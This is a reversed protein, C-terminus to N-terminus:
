EEAIQKPAGSILGDVIGPKRYYINIYKTQEKPKEINNQMMWEIFKKRRAIEKVVENIAIGRETAIKYLLWSEGKYEFTDDHPVWAFTKSTRPTGTQADVSEIEVIEKIRRASKGKERAHIMVIVVDLSDLLGASLNIPHTQLRKMLDDVSGAHMTTISPHGSAMGQFMVYAEKGRIEGVVLYDPNQRFSERLLEFMTVEGVGSGTFGIRAVGPIWNDHPLSLERTDEISVIKAEPHIFFSISNLFSTKGTSVGGAILINAGNEIIYWMYAMIESSATNLRIVDMPSLPEDRFKRISFTPGRTTVDSALSAQIRTGNPLSGDLLPDAYSIYRDCREALKTVFERLEKADNYIINTKMSGFRQHVVYIPVGIGDCNHTFIFDGHMFNKNGEVELDYFPNKYDIKCIGVIKVPHIDGSVLMEILRSKSHLAFRLGLKGDNVIQRGVMKRDHGGYDARDFLFGPYLETGSNSSNTVINRNLIDSSFKELSVGREISIEWTNAFRRNRQDIRTFVGLKYLIYRIGLVLDKSATAMVAKKTKDSIRIYGDGLFYGKVLDKLLSDNWTYAIDPVHKNYSNNGIKLIEEFLIRLTKGGCYVVSSTKHEIITTTTGFLKKGLNVALEHLEKEHKGFAFSIGSSEYYGEALFLGVFMAFDEGPEIVAPIWNKVGQGVSVKLLKRLASDKELKLYAWIPMSDSQKWLAILRNSVDLIKATGMNNTILCKAGKVRFNNYGLKSFEAIIDIPETYEDKDLNKLRLVYEGEKISDARKVVIGSADLVLMPHDPSVNIHNGGQTRIDFYFGDKNEKRLLGTVNKYETKFTNPNFSLVEINALPTKTETSWGKSMETGILEGITTLVLKGDIKAFIKENEPLCGIDEIYPDNLIPDIRNLGVLDRFIFYMIKIYEKESLKFEYEDILRDINKELFSFMKEKEKLDSLSVDIVQILGEYLKGLIFKERENLKPEVVDYILTGEKSDYKINAYSYPRMLPYVISNERVETAHPLILLSKSPSIIFKSDTHKRMNFLVQGARTKPMEVHQEKHLKKYLAGRLPTKKAEPLQEKDGHRKHFVGIMHIKDKISMIEGYGFGSM